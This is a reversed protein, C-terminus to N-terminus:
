KLRLDSNKKKFREWVAKGDLINKGKLILKCRQYFWGWSEWNSLTKGEKDQANEM